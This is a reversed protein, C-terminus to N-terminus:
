PDGVDEKFNPVRNMCKWAFDSRHTHIPYDVGEIGEYAKDIRQEIDKKVVECSAKDPFRFGYVGGVLGLTIAVLYWIM